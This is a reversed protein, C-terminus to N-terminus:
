RLLSRYIEDHAEAVAQQQARREEISAGTVPRTEYASRVAATLSVPDPGAPGDRYTLLPGQEALHGGAPALATAGVDRCVEFVSSHTLGRKPLVALDVSALENALEHDGAWGHLPHLEAGPLRAVVDAVLARVRDTDPGEHLGVRFTSTRRRGRCDQAVAMTRLDVVHPHPVVRASRGWRQRIEEAAGPTLTVVAGAAELLLGLLDDYSTRGAPGVQRLQHVTLVLPTGRTRLARVVGALQRLTRQEFGGHVHLVDLEATALWGRTLM